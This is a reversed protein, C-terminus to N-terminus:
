QFWLNYGESSPMLIATRNDENAWGIKRIDYTERITPGTCDANQKVEAVVKVQERNLPSVRTEGPKLWQPKTAEPSELKHWTTDLTTSGYITIWACKNTKNIVTVRALLQTGPRVAGVSSLLTAALVAVAFTRNM